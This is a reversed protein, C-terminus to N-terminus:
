AVASLKETETEPAAAPPPTTARRVTTAEEIFWDHADVGTVVEIARAVCFAPRRGEVITALVAERTCGGVSEVLGAFTHEDLEYYDLWGRVQRAAKSRVM